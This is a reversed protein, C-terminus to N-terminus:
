GEKLNHNYDFPNSFHLSDAPKFDQEIKVKIGEIRNRASVLIDYAITMSEYKQTENTTIM